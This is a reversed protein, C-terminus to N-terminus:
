PTSHIKDETVKQQLVPFINGINARKIKRGRKRERERVSVCVREKMHSRCMNEYHLHAWGIHGERLSAAFFTLKKLAM